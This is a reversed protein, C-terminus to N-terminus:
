LDLVNKVRMRGMITSAPLLSDWLWLEVDYRKKKMYLEPKQPSKKSKGRGDKRRYGGSEAESALFSNSRVDSVHFCSFIACVSLCVSLLVLGLSHREWDGEWPVKEAKPSM